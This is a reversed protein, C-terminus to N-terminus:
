MPKTRREVREKDSHFNAMKQKQRQKNKKEENALWRRTECVLTGGTAAGALYSARAAAARADCAPGADVAL